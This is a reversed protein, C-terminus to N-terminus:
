GQITMDAGERVQMTDERMGERQSRLFAVMVAGISGQSFPAGAAARLFLSILYSVGSELTFSHGAGLGTSTSASSSRKPGGMDKLKAMAKEV